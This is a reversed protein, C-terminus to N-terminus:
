TTTWRTSAYKGYIPRSTSPSPDTAGGTFGEGEIDALSLEVVPYPVDTEICASGLLAAAATLLTKLYRTNM